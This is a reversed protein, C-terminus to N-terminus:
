RGTWELVSRDACLNLGGEQPTGGLPVEVGLRVHVCVRDDEITIEDDRFARAERISGAPQGDPWVLPAGEPFLVRVRDTIDSDLFGPEDELWTGPEPLAGEFSAVVSGCRSKLTLLTRRDREETSRARPWSGGSHLDVTAGGVRLALFPAIPRGETWGVADRGSGTWGLARDTASVEIPLVFDGLNPRHDSTLPVGPPLEVSTEDVFRHAVPKATVEVLDDKSVLLEVGWATNLPGGSLCHQHGPRYPGPVAVRMRGDPRKGRLAMRFPAKAAPDGLGVVRALQGDATGFWADARVAVWPGAAPGDGAAAGLAPLLAAAVAISMIM